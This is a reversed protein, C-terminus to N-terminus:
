QSFGNGSSSPFSVPAGPSFEQRRAESIDCVLARFNLGWALSSGCELM